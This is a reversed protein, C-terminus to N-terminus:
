ISDYCDNIEMGYDNGSMRHRGRTFLGYFRNRGWNIKKHIGDETGDKVSKLIQDARMLADKSQQEKGAQTKYNLHLMMERIAEDYDDGGGFSDTDNKALIFPVKYYVDMFTNGSITDSMSWFIQSVDILKYRTKQASNWLVALVNGNGDTITIDSNRASFSAINDIRPGFQNSTTMSESTMTVSEELSNANSTQGRIQVIAPTSEVGPCTLTLPGVLVLNQQVPSDGMDRWNKIKYLLTKNTYRPVGISNLPVIQETSHERIGKVEGIYAPLSAICDPPVILTVERYMKTSELEQHFIRCAANFIDVLVQRDQVLDIGTEAAVRTIIPLLM